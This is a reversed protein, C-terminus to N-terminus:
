ICNLRQTFKHHAELLAVFCKPLTDVVELVPLAFVSLVKLRARLTRLGCDSSKIICGFLSSSIFNCCISYEFSTGATRRTISDELQRNTISSYSRFEDAVKDM